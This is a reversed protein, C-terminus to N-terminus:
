DQNNKMRWYRRLNKEARLRKQLATRYKLGWKEALKKMSEGYVRSAIVLDLEIQDLGFDDIGEILAAAFEEYQSPEDETSALDHDELRETANERFHDSIIERKARHQTEYLLNASVRSPRLSIPYNLVSQLFQWWLGLWTEQFNDRKSTASYLIRQLGPALLYTILNLGASKNEAAQIRAILKLLCADKVEFNQRTRDNIIRVFAELSEFCHFVSEKIRIENFFDKVSKDSLVFEFEKRIDM